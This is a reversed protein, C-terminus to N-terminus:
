DGRRVAERAATIACGLDFWANDWEVKLPMEIPNRCSEAQGRLDLLREASEMINVLDGSPIAYRWKGIL